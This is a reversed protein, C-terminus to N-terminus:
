KSIRLQEGSLEPDIEITPDFNDILVIKRNEFALWLRAFYFLASIATFRTTWKVLGDNKITTADWHDRLEHLRRVNDGVARVANFRESDYDFQDFVFYAMEDGTLREAYKLALSFFEDNSLEVDYRLNYTNRGQRLVDVFRPCPLLNVM